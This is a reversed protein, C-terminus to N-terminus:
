NILFVYNGRSYLTLDDIEGQIKDDSIYTKAENANTTLKFTQNKYSVSKIFGETQGTIRNCAIIRYKKQMM